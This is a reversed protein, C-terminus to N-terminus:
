ESVDCVQCLLGIKKQSDPQKGPMDLKKHVQLSLWTHYIALLRHAYIVFSLPVGKNIEDRGRADRRIFRGAGVM